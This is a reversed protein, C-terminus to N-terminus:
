KQKLLYFLIQIFIFIIGAVMFPQWGLQASFGAVIPGLFVGLSFAAYFIGFATGRCSQDTEDVIIATMAPFLLGFGTGYLIMLPVLWIIQTANTLLFLTITVFFLGLGIPALRGFRDSIRNIPLLFIIIAVVSFVSFLMGTTQSSYNLAELKIPFTYALIGMSFMLSFGALYAVQLKREMCLGLFIHMTLKRTSCQKETFTEKLFFWALISTVMLLLGIIIFVVDVGFRVKGIGALMPGFLAAMGVAAGSYGMSRASSSSKRASLDGLYAFAAPILIAGGIGHVIRLWLLQTPSTVWAYLLVSFGALFMGGIIGIKRGYRDIIFGAGLNGVMNSFSYAGMIVGVMIASAGLSSVFTSLIPLQAMTDIFSVVIVYYIFLM